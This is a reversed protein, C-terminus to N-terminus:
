GLRKQNTTARCPKVRTKPTPREAAEIMEVLGRPVPYGCAALEKLAHNKGYCVRAIWGHKRFTELWALQEPRVDSPSGGDRKMEIAMGRVLPYGPPADLIVLDPVGPKLGARKLSAGERASRKAENPVHFWALGMRDLIGALAQQESLETPTGPRRM